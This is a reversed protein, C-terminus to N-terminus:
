IGPRFYNCPCSESSEIDSTNTQTLGPHWVVAGFELVSRVQKCYVDLLENQSAGFSKLRRMLWLRSYSKKTIYETNSHWKMNTTIKVGLLKMEEVVELTENEIVIEPSFDQKLQM